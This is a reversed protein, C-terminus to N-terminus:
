ISGNGVKRIHRVLRHGRGELRAKRARRERGQRAHLQSHGNRCQPQVPSLRPHEPPQEQQGQQGSQELQQDQQNSQECKEPEEIQVKGQEEQQHQSDTGSLSAVGSEEHGSFSHLDTEKGEVENRLSHMETGSTSDSFLKTEEAEEKVVPERREEEMKVVKAENGRLSLIPDVLSGEIDVIKRKEPSPPTLQICIGTTIVSQHGNQEEENEKTPSKPRKQITIKPISLHIMKSARESFSQSDVMRKLDTLTERITKLEETEISMRKLTAGSM